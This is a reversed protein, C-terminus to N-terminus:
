KSANPPPARGRNTLGPGNRQGDAPANAAPANTSMASADPANAAPAAAPAPSNDAANAASDDAKKSCGSMLLATSLATAAILTSYSISRM